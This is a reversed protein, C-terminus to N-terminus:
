AKLANVLKEERHYILILDLLFSLVFLFGLLKQDTRLLEPLLLYSERSTEKLGCCGPSPEQCLLQM